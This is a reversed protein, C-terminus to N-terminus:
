CHRVRAVNQIDTLSVDCRKAYDNINIALLEPKLVDFGTCHQEIFRADYLNERVIVSLLTLMLYADTSPKLQLHVDAMKATETVKPDIVVMRRNPDKQLAKLTDRANVIGHAQFPNTGIFLVYDAHEIDETIHCLQSGFLRGNVWIDGTKEQALATYIFRSGMAALLQSSYVGGWHNGQGGGGVFAFSQGGYQTKQQNLQQAIETLAIEWSVRVFTGDPQRKLPYKLRDDHNQYYDLRAAKQCIYGKSVPHNEDGKIKAFKGDQIDVELGCNRSCLPCATVSVSM